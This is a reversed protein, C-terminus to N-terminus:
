NTENNKNFIWVYIVINFLQLGALSLPAWVPLNMLLGLIVLSSIIYINIGYITSRTKYYLFKNREDNMEINVKKWEETSKRKQFYELMSAVGGGFIGSGIGVLIGNFNQITSKISVFIGLLVIIIGITIYIISQEITKNKKFM